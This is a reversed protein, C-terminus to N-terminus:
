IERWLRGAEHHVKRSGVLLPVHSFEQDQVARMLAERGVLGCGVEGSHLFIPTGQACSQHIPRLKRWGAPVEREGDMTGLDHWRVRPDDEQWECGEFGGILFAAM